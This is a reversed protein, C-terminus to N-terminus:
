GSTNARRLTQAPRKLVADVDGLYEVWKKATDEPTM